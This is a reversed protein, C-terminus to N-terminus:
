TCIKTLLVSCKIAGFACKRFEAAYVLYIRSRDADTHKDTHRYTQIHEVKSADPALM